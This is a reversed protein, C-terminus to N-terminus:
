QSGCIMLCSPRDSVVIWIPSMPIIGYATAVTAIIRHARWESATRSRLSCQQSGSPTEASAINPAASVCDGTSAMPAIQMASAPSYANLDGNQATGPSNRDLALAVVATAAM